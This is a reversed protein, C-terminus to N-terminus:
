IKHIISLLSSQSLLFALEVIVGLVFVDELVAEVGYFVEEPEAEDFLDGTGDVSLDPFLFYCLVSLPQSVEMLLEVFDLVLDDLHVIVVGV